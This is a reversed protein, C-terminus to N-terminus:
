KGNNKNNNNGNSQGTNNDTGNGNNGNGNNHIKDDDKPHYNDHSKDIITDGENIVTTKNEERIIIIEQEIVKSDIIKTNAEGCDDSYCNVNVNVIITYEKDLLKQLLETYEECDDEVEVIPVVAEKVTVIRPTCAIFSISILLTLIIILVKKM